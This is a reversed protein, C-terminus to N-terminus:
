GAAKYRRRFLTAAIFVDEESRPNKLGRIKMLKARDRALIRAAKKPKLLLERENARAGGSLGTGLTM